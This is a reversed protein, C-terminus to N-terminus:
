KSTALGRLQFATIIAIAGAVIAWISFVWILTAMTSVPHTIVLLGFLVYLIGMILGSLRWQRAKDKDRRAFITMVGSIIITIGILYALFVGSVLGAVLPNGLIFIGAFISVIGIVFLQIRSKEAHGRVGEFLNFIGDVIWYIGMFWLLNLLTAAPQMFMLIGFLVLLVGRTLPMWWLLALAEVEMQETKNIKAASM